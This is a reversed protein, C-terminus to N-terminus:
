LNGNYLPVADLIWVCGGINLAMKIMRIETEM